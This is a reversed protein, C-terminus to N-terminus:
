VKQNGGLTDVYLCVYLNVEIRRNRGGSLAMKSDMEKPLVLSYNRTRYRTGHSAILAVVPETQVSAPRFV